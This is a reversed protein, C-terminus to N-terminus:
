LGVKDSDKGYLKIRRVMEEKCKEKRELRQNKLMWQHGIADLMYALDYRDVLYDITKLAIRTRGKLEEDQISELLVLGDVASFTGLNSISKGYDHPCFDKDCFELDYGWSGCGREGFPDEPSGRKWYREYDIM